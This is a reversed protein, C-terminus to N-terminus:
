ENNIPRKLRNLLIENGQSFNKELNELSDYLMIIKDKINIHEMEMEKLRIVIENNTKEDWNEM